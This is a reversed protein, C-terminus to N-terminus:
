FVSNNSKVVSKKELDKTDNGWEKKWRYWCGLWNISQQDKTVSPNNSNQFIALLQNVKVFM